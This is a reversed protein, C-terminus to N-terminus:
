DATLDKELYFFRFIATIFFASTIYFCGPLNWNAGTCALLLISFCGGVLFLSLILQAECWSLAERSRGTWPLSNLGLNM